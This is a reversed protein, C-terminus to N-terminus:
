KVYEVGKVKAGKELYISVNERERERERVSFLPLFM